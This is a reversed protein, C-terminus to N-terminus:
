LLGIAGIWWLYAFAALVIPHLAFLVAHLWHEGPGCLRAHIAEDKTVFLTSIVALAVYVPLAEPSGRRAGILWLLCLAISLTDLPHGIREWRPLGRARHFWAEDVVMAIAQLVIAIVCGVIMAEGAVSRVRDPRTRVCPERDAHRARGASRRAPADLHAAADGV